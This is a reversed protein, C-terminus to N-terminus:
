PKNFFIFFNSMALFEQSIIIIKSLVLYNKSKVTPLIIIIERLYTTSFCSAIQNYKIVFM